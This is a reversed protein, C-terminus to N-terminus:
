VAPADGAPREQRSWAAVWLATGFLILLPVAKSLPPLVRELWNWATPDRPLWAFPTPLALTATAALAIRSQRLRGGRELGVCLLLGAVLAGSIHHEWVQFYSVFHALLLTSAGIQLPLDRARLIIVATGGLVAARWVITLAGWLPLNWEGSLLQGGLFVVYLVGHNGADLGVPEGIFNKSWFADISAPDALFLPLNTGVVIALTVVSLPM